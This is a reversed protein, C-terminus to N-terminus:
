KRRKYKAKYNGTDISITFSPECVSSSNEDVPTIFGSTLGKTNSRYYVVEGDSNIIEADLPENPYFYNSAIVLEAGEHGILFRDSPMKNKM